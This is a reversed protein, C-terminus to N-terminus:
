LNSPFAKKRSDRKHISTDLHVDYTRMNIKASAKSNMYRKKLVPSQHFALGRM